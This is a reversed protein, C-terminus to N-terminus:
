VASGQTSGPADVSGPAGMRRAMIGAVEALVALVHIRQVAALQALHEVTVNKAGRRLQQVLSLSVDLADAFAQDDGGSERWVRVFYETLAIRLEALGQTVLAADGAAGRPVLSRVFLTAKPCSDHTDTICM